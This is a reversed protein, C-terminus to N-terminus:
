NFLFNNTNIEQKLYFVNLKYNRWMFLSNDNMYTINYIDEYSNFKDYKKILKFSGNIIKAVLIEMKYSCSNNKQGFLSNYQINNSENSEVNLIYINNDDNTGCCIRKKNLLSFNEIYQILEKTSTLVLGIGNFCSIIIYENNYKYLCNTDNICDINKISSVEEYTETYFIELSKADPQSSIFIDKNILLLDLTNSFIM